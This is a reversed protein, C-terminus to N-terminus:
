NRVSFYVGDHIEVRLHTSGIELNELTVGPVVYLVLKIGLYVSTPRNVKKSNNIV